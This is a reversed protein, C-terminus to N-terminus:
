KEGVVWAMDESSAYAEKRSLALWSGLALGCVLVEEVDGDFGWGVGCSERMECDVSM